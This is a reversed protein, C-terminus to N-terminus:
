GLVGVTPGQSYQKADVLGAHIERHCNACVLICKKAEERMRAISRTIGAQSLSFSKTSADVHHFDLAWMSRNYGCVICKGGFEEVVTRKNKRRTQQVYCGNCKNRYRGHFNKVERVKGCIECTFIM